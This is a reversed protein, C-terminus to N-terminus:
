LPFFNPLGQEDALVVSYHNPLFWAIAELIANREHEPPTGLSDLSFVLDYNEKDKSIVLIKIDDVGQSSFFERLIERVYIPLYQETPPGAIVKDGKEFVIKDGEPAASAEFFQGYEKFGWIMGYPFVYDPMDKHANIVLGIGRNSLWDAIRLFPEDATPSVRAFLYPWGDPGQQAEKNELALTGDILAQLFAREWELDRLSEPQSCLNTLNLYRAM